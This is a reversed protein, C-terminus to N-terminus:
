KPNLLALKQQLGNPWLSKYPQLQEFLAFLCDLAVLADAAAYDQQAATLPESLPRAWNSLTVKKTKPIKLKLVSATIQITGLQKPAGLHNMLENIDLTPGLTINFDRKLASIDSRLGIGVKVAAAGEGLVDALAAKFLDINTEVMRFLYCHSITAIQVLSIPNTNRQGKQFSAATETDFGLWTQAKIDSMAAALSDATVVVVTRQAGDMQASINKAVAISYDDLRALERQELRYGLRMRLQLWDLQLRNQETTIASFFAREANAMAEMYGDSNAGLERRITDVKDAALGFKFVSM